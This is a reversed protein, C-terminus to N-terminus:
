TFLDRTRNLLEHYLENEVKRVEEYAGIKSPSIGKEKAKDELMKLDDKVFDWAAKLDAMTFEEIKKM